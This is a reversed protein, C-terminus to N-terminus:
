SASEVSLAPGPVSKPVILSSAFPLRTRMGLLVSPLKLVARFSLLCQILNHDQEHGIYLLRPIM